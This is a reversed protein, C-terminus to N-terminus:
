RLNAVYAALAEIEADTLGQSSAAAMEHSLRRAKGDRFKKVTQATFGPQQGAIRAYGARSRGDLGHCAQCLRVYLGQGEKALGLNGKAPKLPVSAYYLVLAIKEEDQFRASLRQMVKTYDQRRGDAFREIQDLLYIPDQDALNPIDPKVSNGDAGHCYACFTAHQRGKQIAAERAEPNREVVAIRGTLVAKLEDSSVARGPSSVAFMGLAAAGAIAQRCSIRNRKTM